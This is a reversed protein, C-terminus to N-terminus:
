ISSAVGCRVSSSRLMRCMYDYQRSVAVTQRGLAAQMCRMRSTNVVQVTDVLCSVASLCEGWLVGSQPVVNPQFCVLSSVGAFGCLWAVLLRIMHLLRLYKAVGDEFCHFWQQQMFGATGTQRRRTSPCCADSSHPWYHMAKSLCTRCRCLAQGICLLLACRMSRTINYVSLLCVLQFAPDLTSPALTTRCVIFRM